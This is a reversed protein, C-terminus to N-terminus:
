KGAVFFFDRAAPLSGYTFPQQRGKTAALVDDRVFDFLRRVERGPVKLQAVFSRAFPSNVGEGDEAVEGDKAAYVVLTGPKTEPPPALGRDTPSRTAVTRLMRDKFPNVRCADLVVLRLARAGGAANLLSEYSVAEDKVDRDDILKADTPVLYNHRDIEIGHGAFYVLAWDAQDAKDRFARLAKVMGDRDLDTALDVSEFGDERLAAAVADADRPPNRLVPVSRYQSNAIVLAVRRDPAATSAAPRDDAPKGPTSPAALAARALDRWQRAAANNPDLRLAEDYDAIARAYDGLLELLRGHPRRM